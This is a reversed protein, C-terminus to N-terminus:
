HAYSDLDCNLNMLVNKNLVQNISNIPQALRNGKGQVCNKKKKKQGSRFSFTETLNM